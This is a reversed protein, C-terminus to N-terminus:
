VSSVSFKSHLCIFIYSYTMTQPAAADCDRARVKKDHIKFARGHDQWSVITRLHKMSPNSESLVDIDTLMLHLMAPFATSGEQKTMSSIMM